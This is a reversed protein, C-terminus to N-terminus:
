LRVANSRGQWVCIGGVTIGADYIRREVDTMFHNYFRQMFYRTMKDPDNGLRHVVLWIHLCLLTYTSYFIKPDLGFAACPHPFVPNIM